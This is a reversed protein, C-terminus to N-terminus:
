LIEIEFDDENFNFEKKEKDTFLSEKGNTLKRLIAEVKLVDYVGQEIAEMVIADKYAERFRKGVKRLLTETEIVNLRLALAIRFIMITPIDRSGNIYRSLTSEKILSRQSLMVQTIQKQYMLKNVYQRFDENQDQTNRKIANEFGIISARSFTHEMTYFPDLKPQNLMNYEIQIKEIKKHIEGTSFLKQVNIIIKNLDKEM